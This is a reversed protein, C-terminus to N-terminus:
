GHCLEGLLLIAQRQRRGRGLQGALSARAVARFQTYSVYPWLLVIALAM